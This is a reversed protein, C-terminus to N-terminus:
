KAGSWLLSTKGGTQGLLTEDYPRRQSDAGASMLLSGPTESSVMRICSEMKRAAMQVTM